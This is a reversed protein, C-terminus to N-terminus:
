ARAVVREAVGGAVGHEDLRRGGRRSRHPGAVGHGPDAAVLEDHQALVDGVAVLGDRMARASRRRRRRATRRDVADLDDDGGADADDDGVLVGVGLREHAVGVEGHVPGLLAAPGPDLREVGGHAVLDARAEPM